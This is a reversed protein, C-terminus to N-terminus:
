QWEAPENQNPLPLGCDIEEPMKDLDATKGFNHDRLVQTKAAGTEHCTGDATRITPMQPPLKPELWKKEADRAWRFAKKSDDNAEAVHDFWTRRSQDRDQPKSDHAIQQARQQLLRWQAQFPENPDQSREAAMAAQNRYHEVEPPDGPQHKDIQIGSSPMTSALSLQCTFIFLRAYSEVAAKNMLPPKPFDRFNRKTKEVIRALKKKDHPMIPYLPRTYDPAIDLITVTVRHDSEFGPCDVIQWSEFRSAVAANAFALDITSRQKHTGDSRSWTTSGPTTLLQFDAEQIASFLENGAHHGSDTGYWDKRKSWLPNHANSDTFLIESTEDESARKNIPMFFENWNFKCNRNHVNHIAIEHGTTTQLMLTAVLDVDLGLEPYMHVRWHDVPIFSDVLFAVRRMETDYPPDEGKHYRPDDARTLEGKASNCWLRYRGFNMYAIGKPPDQICIVHWQRLRHAALVFRRIRLESDKAQCTAIQLMQAAALKDPSTGNHAHALLEPWQQDCLIDEDCLGEVKKESLRKPSTRQVRALLKLWHVDSLIDENSVSLIDQDSVIGESLHLPTLKSPIHQPPVTDEDSLHLYTPKSPTHRPPTACFTTPQLGCDRQWTSSLTDSM